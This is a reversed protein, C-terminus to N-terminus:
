TLTGLLSWANMVLSSILVPITWLLVVRVRPACFVWTQVGALVFFGAIFSVLLASSRSGPCLLILNIGLSLAVLAGLLVGLLTRMWM